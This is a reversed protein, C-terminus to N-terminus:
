SRILKRTQGDLRVADISPYVKPWWGSRPNITVLRECRDREPLWLPNAPSRPGNRCCPTAAAAVVPESTVASQEPLPTAALSFGVLPHYTSVVRFGRLCRNRGDYESSHRVVFINVASVPPRVALRLNGGRHRGGSLVGRTPPIHLRRPIRQPM